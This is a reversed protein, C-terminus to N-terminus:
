EDGEGCDPCPTALAFAANDSANYDGLSSYGNTATAYVDLRESFAANPCTGLLTSIVVDKSYTFAGVLSFGNTGALGATGSTSATAIDPGSGRGTTFFYAAFNNPHRAVFSLAAIDSPSSYNHFGCVPDPTVTGGVPQIEAVCRNNDVRLVMRFGLTNGGVTLIRNYAPAPSTTVAGTGFPADQDTIRLDIGRATWDVPNGLSDFLELKLEYRGAALDDTWGTGPVNVPTGALLGTEFHATALDVGEDLVIWETGTPPNTPRIRFLNPAPAAGPGSTPMPGMRESPYSTGDKYHRYVDRTMVSWSGIPVSGSGVSTTIGDPGSLRRYSWRYYPVNRANILEDRSFDVRPELTAGFPEGTNTLGEHGTTQVERVAVNRGLSNVVV